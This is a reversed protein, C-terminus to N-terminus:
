ELDIYVSKLDYEVGTSHDVWGKVYPRTLYAFSRFFLPSVPRDDMLVKEASYLDQMRQTQSLESKAVQILEDYKPNSYGGNNEKHNTMFTDLFTMPDNYDAGWFNVAMDFNHDNMRQLLTTYSVYEVNVDIGLQNKWQQKLNDGLLKGNSNSELVLTLPPFASVGLESLGQALYSKAKAANDQRDIVDGNTARFDGGAGNSVGSPVVGTAPTYADYFASKIVSHPDIAYSLAKRINANQLVPVKFNFMVEGLSLNNVTSFDPSDKLRDYQTSTVQFRDLVYRNYANEAMEGDRGQFITVKDLMVKDKDWYYPNRTLAKYNNREWTRMEFPGNYLLHTPDTAYDKGQQEVFSQKLPYFCTMALKTLYYAQPETLTVQLTRSDLAKVGVDDASGKGESYATSGTIDLFAYAFDSNIAPNLVRKWAYAFDQATVNSGDSWKANGRLHFTYTKGDPSITWTEAVGPTAQGNADLRVLGENIQGLLDQGTTDEAKATDLSTVERYVNLGLVQTHELEGVPYVDSLITIKKSSSYWTVDCGLAETVFRIPVFVRNKQVEASQDLTVTKGNITATKSNISMAITTDGKTAVVDLPKDKAWSVKAGLAEFIGRVPVMARNNKVYPMVDYQQEHNDIYIMPAATTATTAATVHVPMTALTMTGLSLCLLAKGWNSM